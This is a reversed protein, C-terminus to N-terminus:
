SPDLLINPNDNQAFRLILRPSIRDVVSSERRDFVSFYYFQNKGKELEPSRSMESLIVIRIQNEM